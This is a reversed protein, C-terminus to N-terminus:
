ETNQISRLMEVIPIPENYYRCLSEWLEPHPLAEPHAQRVTQWARLLPLSEIEKIVATAFSASRSIGAGYAILTTQERDYATRVFLAGQRM